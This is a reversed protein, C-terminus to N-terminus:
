KGILSRLVTNESALESIKKKLKVKDGSKDFWEDIKRLMESDGHINDPCYLYLGSTEPDIGIRRAIADIVAKACQWRKDYMATSKDKFRLMDRYDGVSPMEIKDYYEKPRSFESVPDFYQRTMKM